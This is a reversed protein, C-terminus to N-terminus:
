SLRWFKLTSGVTCAVYQSIVVCGDGVGRLFRLPLLRTVGGSTVLETIWTSGDVPAVLEVATGSPLPHQLDVDASPPASVLTVSGPLVVLTTVDHGIGFDSSPLVTEASAPAAVGNGSVPDVRGTGTSSLICVNPACAQVQPASDDLTLQWLVHLDSIRFAFLDNSDTILMVGGVFLLRAKLTLLDGGRSADPLFTLGSSAVPSGTALALVTLGAPQNCLEVLYEAEADGAVSTECAASVTRTWISAGSHPNILSLVTSAGAGAYTLLGAAVNDIGRVSANWLRAGTRADFGEAMLNSSGSPPAAIVVTGDVAAFYASGSEGDVPATWLPRGGPLAYDTLRSHGDRSDLVLAATDQVLLQANSGIAIDAVLPVQQTPRLDTAAGIVLAIVVLFVIKGSRIWVARDPWSMPERVRGAPASVDGLDIIM